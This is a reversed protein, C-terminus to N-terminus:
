LTVCQWRGAKFDSFFNMVEMDLAKSIIILQGATAGYTGGRIQDIEETTLIDKFVVVEDLHGDFTPSGGWTGMFRLVGDEVNINNTATGTLDSGLIASANDDWIRIRYSKDSDDFTCGVHYWQGATITWGHTLVEWSAGSSYGISMTVRLPSAAYSIAFSRKGNDDKFFTAGNATDWNIWCTVSIKKNSDGSKLPFGSDLSSDLIYFGGSGDREVSAAGEKYDVTDTTPSGTETLTNTGVSDTTLAGNEFRWLAVCDTDTTFDNQAFACTCLLLFILLRKM